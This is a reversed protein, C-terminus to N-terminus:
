SNANSEKCLNALCEDNNDCLFGRLQPDSIEPCIVPKIPVVSRIPQCLSQLNLVRGDATQMYCVLEDMDLNPVEPYKFDVALPRGLATETILSILVAYFAARLHFLKLMTEDHVLFYKTLFEKQL